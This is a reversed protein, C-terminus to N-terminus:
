ESSDILHNPVEPKDKVKQRAKGRAIADTAIRDKVMQWVATVYSFWGEYYESKAWIWPNSDEDLEFQREFWDEHEPQRHEFQKTGPIRRFLYAGLDGRGHKKHIAVNHSFIEFDELTAVQVWHKADDRGISQWDLNTKRSYELFLKNAITQMGDSNAQNVAREYSEIRSKIADRCIQSLNYINKLPKFRDYIDNPINIGLRM